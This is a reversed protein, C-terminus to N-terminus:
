GIASSPQPVERGDDKGRAAEASVERATSRAACEGLPAGGVRAVSVEHEVVDRAGHLLRREEHSVENVLRGTADGCASETVGRARGGVSGGRAHRRARVERAERENAGEEVRGVQEKPGQTRFLTYFYIGDPHKVHAQLYEHRREALELVDTDSGAGIAEDVSCLTAVADRYTQGNDPM